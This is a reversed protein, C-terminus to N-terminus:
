VKMYNLPLVDYSFEIKRNLENDVLEGAFNDAFIFEDTLMKFTGSYIITGDLPGDIKEKVFAMLEAPNLLLGLEGEQLTHIEWGQYGFM